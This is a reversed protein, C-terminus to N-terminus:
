LYIEINVELAEPIDVPIGNLANLVEDFCNVWEYNNSPERKENSQYAVNFSQFSEDFATCIGDSLNSRKQQQQQQQENLKDSTDNQNGDYNMIM